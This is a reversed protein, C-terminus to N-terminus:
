YLLLLDFAENDRVGKGPLRIGVQNQPKPNLTSPKM